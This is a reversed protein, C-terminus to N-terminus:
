IEYDMCVRVKTYPRVKGDAVKVHEPHVAYNKLAEADTFTTDLMVDANALNSSSTIKMNAKVQSGVTASPDSFTIKANAAFATLMQAPMMVAIMCAMVLVAIGQRMRRIM